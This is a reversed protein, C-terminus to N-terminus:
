ASNGLKSEGRLKIQKEFLKSSSIKGKELLSSRVAILGEAVALEKSVEEFVRKRQEKVSSQQGDIGVVQQLQSLTKLIDRIQEERQRVLKRDLKNYLDGKVKYLLAGNQDKMRIIENLKRFQGSELLEDTLESVLGNEEKQKIEVAAIAARKM